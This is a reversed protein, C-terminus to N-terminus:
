PIVKTNERIATEYHSANKTKDRRTPASVAIRIKVSRKYKIESYRKDITLKFTHLIVGFRSRVSEKTIRNTRFSKDYPNKSPTIRM